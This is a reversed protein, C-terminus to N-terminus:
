LITKIIFISVILISFLSMAMFISLIIKIQFWHKNYNKDKDKDKYIYEGDIKIRGTRQIAKWQLICTSLVFLSLILLLVSSVYNESTFYSPSINQTVSIEFLEYSLNSNV